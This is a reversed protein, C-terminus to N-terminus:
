DKDKEYADEFVRKNIENKTVAKLHKPNVCGKRGCTLVVCLDEELPGIFVEYAVKRAAYTTPRGPVGEPKWGFSCYRDVQPGVGGIEIYWCENEQKKVLLALFKDQYCAFKGKKVEDKMKRVSSRWATHLHM